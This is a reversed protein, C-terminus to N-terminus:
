TNIEGIITYNFFLIFLYYRINCIVEDHLSEIHHEPSLSVSFVVYTMGGRDGSLVLKLNSIPRFNALQTKDLTELGRKKLLTILVHAIKFCAPFQGSAFSINVM